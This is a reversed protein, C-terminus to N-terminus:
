PMNSLTSATVLSATTAAALVFEPQLLLGHRSDGGSVKGPQVQDGPFPRSM